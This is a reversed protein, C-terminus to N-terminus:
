GFIRASISPIVHKPFGPMARTHCERAVTAKHYIGGMSVMKPWGDKVNDFSETERARVLSPPCIAGTCNLSLPRCIWGNEIAGQHFSFSDSGGIRLANRPSKKQM